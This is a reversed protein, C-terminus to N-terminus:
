EYFDADEIDTEDPADSPKRIHVRTAATNEQIVTAFHRRLWAKILSRTVPILLLLGVADTIFGPTLLLIGGTLIMLGDLMEETPMQGYVLKQQIDRWIVFGQIRALSAGTVGTLLILFLTNLAGIRTGVEIMVTLELAPLLTFLLILYPM